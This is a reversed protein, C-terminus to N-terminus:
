QEHSVYVTYKNSLINSHFPDLIDQKTISATVFCNDLNYLYTIRNKYVTKLVNTPVEAAHSTRIMKSLDLYHMRKM